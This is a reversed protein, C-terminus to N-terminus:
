YQLCFFKITIHFVRAAISIKNSSCVKNELINTLVKREWGMPVLKNLQYSKDYNKKKYIMNEHLITFFDLSKSAKHM